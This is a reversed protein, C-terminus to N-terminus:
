PWRISSEGDPPSDLGVSDSQVSLLLRPSWREAHGTVVRRAVAVRM